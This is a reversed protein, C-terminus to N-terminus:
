LNSREETKYIYFSNFIGISESYYRPALERPVFPLFDNLALNTKYLSFLFYNKRETNDAVFTKLQSRNADVFSRCQSDLGSVHINILDKVANALSPCGETKIQQALKQGAFENYEGKNPNTVILAIAGGVVALGLIGGIIKIVM